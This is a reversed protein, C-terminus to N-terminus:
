ARELFGPPCHRSLQTQHVSSLDESCFQLVAQVQDESINYLLEVLDQFGPPCVIMLLSFRLDDVAPDPDFLAEYRTGSKEYQACPYLMDSGVAKM